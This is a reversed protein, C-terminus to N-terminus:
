DVLNSAFDCRAWGSDVSHQRVQMGPLVDTACVIEDPRFLHRSRLLSEWLSLTFWISCGPIATEGVGGWDGKKKKLLM